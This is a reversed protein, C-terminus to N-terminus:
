APAFIDIVMNALRDVVVFIAKFGNSRPLGEVFDMSIDRWVSHPLELPLLLGAPALAHVGHDQEKPLSCM